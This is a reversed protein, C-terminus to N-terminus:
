VTAPESLFALLAKLFLEPKEEALLHGSLPQV